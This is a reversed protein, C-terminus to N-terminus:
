NHLWAIFNKQLVSFFFRQLFRYPEKQQFTLALSDIGHCLATIDVIYSLM